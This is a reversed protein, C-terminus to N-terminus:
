FHKPWPNKQFDKERLISIVAKAFGSAAVGHDYWPNKIGQPSYLQYMAMFMEFLVKKDYQRLAVRATAPCKKMGVIQRRLDETAWRTSGTIIEMGIHSDKYYKSWYQRDSRVTAMIHIKDKPSNYCRQPDTTKWVFVAEYRDRLQAPPLFEKAEVGYQPPIACYDAIEKGWDKQIRAKEETSLDWDIPQSQEKPYSEFQELWHLYAKDAPSLKPPLNQYLSEMTRGGPDVRCDPNQFGMIKKQFAGIARRTRPGCIGDVAITDVGPLHGMGIWKMLRGQITMVDEPHNQANKGVSGSLKIYKWMSM